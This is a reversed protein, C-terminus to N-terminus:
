EMVIDRLVIVFRRFDTLTRILGDRFDYISLRDDNGLKKKEHFRALWEEVQGLHRGCLQLCLSASEPISSTESLAITGVEDLIQTYLQTELLTSAFEVSILKESRLSRLLRNTKTLLPSLARRLRYLTWKWHKNDQYLIQFLTSRPKLLSAGM